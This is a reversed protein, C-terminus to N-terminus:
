DAVFNEFFGVISFPQAVLGYAKQLSYVHEPDYM